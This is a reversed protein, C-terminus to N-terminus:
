TIKCKKIERKEYSGVAYEPKLEAAAKEVPTTPTKNQEAEHVTPAQTSREIKQQIM